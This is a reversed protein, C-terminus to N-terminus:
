RNPGIAKNITELITSGCCKGLPNNLICNGDKMAGTFKIIDKVNKAGQNTVANIIEEETVKSCYCVYKPNANKKFWIPIKVETKNFISEGDSSYYVVDCDENMCLYYDEEDVVEEVFNNSGLKKVTISKVKEGLQNCIPCKVGM